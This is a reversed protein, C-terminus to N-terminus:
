IIEGRLEAQVREICSILYNLSEKNKSIEQYFYLIQDFLPEDKHIECKTELFDTVSDSGLFYLGLAIAFSLHVPSIHQEECTRAAGVLRDASGLKRIPERAVREVTDKLYPNQFRYLLDDIHFQLDAYDVNYKRELAMASETMCGQVIKRIYINKAAEDIYTVGLIKGLFATTVHAMNHIYLKRELYFHFPEYPVIKKYKPIPNKFASKDVPLFDYAEVRVALPHHEEQDEEPNPPPVMRGISTEVLGLRQEMILHYSEPLAALLWKRLLVDADMLNECILLDIANEPDKDWRKILGQAIVPAVKELVSAGVATALIDADAIEDRVADLDKGNVARINKIWHIEKQEKMIIQPYTGETNMTDVLWDNVDIFVVEYGLSSFLAGIFGRGISGAGYMIAKMPVGKNTNSDFVLSM